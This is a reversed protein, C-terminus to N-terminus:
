HRPKIRGLPDKGVVISAGATVTTENVSDWDTLKWYTDQSKLGVTASAEYYAGVCSGVSVDDFTRYDGANYVGGSGNHVNGGDLLVASGLNVRLDRKIDNDSPDVRFCAYRATSNGKEHSTLTPDTHSADYLIAATGFASSVLAAAVASLNLPPVAILGGLAWGLNLTMSLIHTGSGSTPVQLETNIQALPGRVHVENVTNVSLDMAKFTTGKLTVDKGPYSIYAFCGHRLAVAEAQYLGKNDNSLPERM